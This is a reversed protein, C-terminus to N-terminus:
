GAFYGGAGGIVAGAVAGWGGGASYGLSAGSVAGSAAGAWQGGGAGSQDGRKTNSGGSGPQLARLSDVGYKMLMNAKWEVANVRLDIGRDTFMSAAGVRIRNLDGLMQACSGDARVHADLMQAMLAAGGSKAAVNWQDFQGMEAISRIVADIRRLDVDALANFGQILNGKKLKEGEIQQNIADTIFANKFRENGSQSEVAGRQGETWAVGARTITEAANNLFGFRLTLLQAALAGMERIHNVKAVLLDRQRDSMKGLIDHKAVQNEREEGIGMKIADLRLSGRRIGADNNRGSQDLTESIGAKLFDLKRNADNDDVNAATRFVGDIWDMRKEHARESLEARFRRVGDLHRSRLIAKAIEFAGSEVANIELASAGMRAIQEALAGATAIEHEIALKDIVEPGIVIENSKAIVKNLIAEWDRDQDPDILRFVRAFSKEIERLAETWSKKEIPEGGLIENMRLLMKDLLKDFDLFNLGALNEAARFIAKFNFEKLFPAVQISKTVLPELALENALNTCTEARHVMKCFDFRGELDQLKQATQIMKKYSFRADTQGEDRATRLFGPWDFTPDLEFIRRAKAAVAEVDYANGYPIKAKVAALYDPWNFRNTLDLAADACETFDTYNPCEELAQVLDSYDTWRDESEDLDATPDYAPTVSEIVSTSKYPNIMATTLADCMTPIPHCELGDESGEGMFGLWSNKLFPDIFARNKVTYDDPVDSAGGM